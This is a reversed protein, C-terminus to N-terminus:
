SPIHSEEAPRSQFISQGEEISGISGVSSDEEVKRDDINDNSTNDTEATTAKNVEKPANANPETTDEQEEEKDKHADVYDSATARRVRRAQKRTTEKEGITVGKPPSPPEENHRVARNYNLVFTRDEESLGYWTTSPHIKIIGDMNPNIVPPLPQTGQVIKEEGGQTRRPRKPLPEEKILGMEGALRRVRKVSEAKRSMSREKKRITLVLDRLPTTIVNIELTEEVTANSLIAHVIKNKAKNANANTCSSLIKEYGTAIFTVTTSAKWKPWNIPDGAYKSVSPAQLKLSRGTATEEQGEKPQHRAYFAAGGAIAGLMMFVSSDFSFLSQNLLSPDFSSVPFM